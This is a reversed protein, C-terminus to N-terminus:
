RAEAQGFIRPEPELRIGFTDWVRAEVLQAQTYDQATFIVRHQVDGDPAAMIVLVRRESLRLFEIHHFVSPKRPATIVGVFHSLNSLLQAANAIVRQATKLVDVLERVTRAQRVTVIMSDATPGLARRLSREIQDRQKDTAEEHEPRSAIDFRSPM